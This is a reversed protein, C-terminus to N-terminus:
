RFVWPPLRHLWRCFRGCYPSGPLAPRVLCVLCVPGDDDEGDGPPVTV